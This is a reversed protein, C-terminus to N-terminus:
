TIGEHSAKHALAPAGAVDGIAYVGEVNTRAYGDVPIFGREVKVGVKDLGIDEVNGTIGVAVLCYDGAVHFVDPEILDAHLDLAIDEV